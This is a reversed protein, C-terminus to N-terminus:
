ARLKLGELDEAKTIPRKGAPSAAHFGLDFFSSCSWARTRWSARELMKGLPGDVM